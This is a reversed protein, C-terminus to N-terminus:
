DITEALKLLAADERERARRETDFLSRRRDTLRVQLLFMRALAEEVVDSAPAELGTAALLLARRVALSEAWARRDEATLFGTAELHSIQERLSFEKALPGIELLLAEQFIEEVRDFSRLFTTESPAIGQRYIKAAPARIGGPRVVPDADVSSSDQQPPRSRGPRALRRGVLQQIGPHVALISMAPIVVASIWRHPGLPNTLALGSGVVVAMLQISLSGSTLWGMFGRGVSLLRSLAAIAV